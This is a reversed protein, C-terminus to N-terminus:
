WHYRLPATSVPLLEAVVTASDIGDAVVLAEDLLYLGVYQKDKTAFSADM